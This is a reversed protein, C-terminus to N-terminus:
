WLPPLSLLPLLMKKKFDSQDVGQDDDNEGQGRLSEPICCYQPNREHSLQPEVQFDGWSLQSSRFSPPRGLLDAQSKTLASRSHHQGLEVLHEADLVLHEADLELHEADLELHEADLELHEAALQTM